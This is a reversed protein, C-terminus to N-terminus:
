STFQLIICAGGVTSYVFTHEQASRPFSLIRHEGGFLVLCFVVYMGSWPCNCAPLDTHGAPYSGEVLCWSAFFPVFEGCLSNTTFCKGEDSQSRQNLTKFPTHTFSPRKQELRKKLSQETRTQNIRAGWGDMWGDMGRWGDM